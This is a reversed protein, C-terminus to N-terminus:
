TMMSGCPKTVAALTVPNTQPAIPQVAPVPQPATPAAKPVEAPSAPTAAALSSLGALALAALFRAPRRLSSVQPQVLPRSAHSM